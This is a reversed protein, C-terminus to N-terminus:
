IPHNTCTLGKVGVNEYALLAPSAARSVPPHASDRRSRGPGANIFRQLRWTARARRTEGGTDLTSERPMAQEASRAHAAHYCGSRAELEWPHKILREARRV